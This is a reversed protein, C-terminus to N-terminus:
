IGAPIPTVGGRGGGKLSLPGQLPKSGEPFGPIGPPFLLVSLKIELHEVDAKGLPFGRVFGLPFM